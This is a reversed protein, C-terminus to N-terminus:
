FITPMGLAGLALFNAAALESSDSGLTNTWSMVGDTTSQYSGHARVSSGDQDFDKTQNAGVTFDSTIGTNFVDLSLDGPNVGTLTVSNNGNGVFARQVNGYTRAGKLQWSRDGGCDEVLVIEFDPSIPELVTRLRRYLEELCAEARYVPIVVSIHAM